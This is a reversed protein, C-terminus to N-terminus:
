PFAWSMSALYKKIKLITQYLNYILSELDFSLLSQSYYCLYSSQCSQWAKHCLRCYWVKFPLIIWLDNTFENTKFFLNGFRDNELVRWEKAQNQRM